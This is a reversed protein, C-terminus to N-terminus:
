LANKILLIKDGRAPKFCLCIYCNHKNRLCLATTPPFGASLLLLYLQKRGRQRKKMRSSPATKKM